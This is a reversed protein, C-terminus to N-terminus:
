TEYNCQFHYVFIIGSAIFSIGAMYEQQRSGGFIDQLRYNIKLLKMSGCMSIEDCIIMCLDEFQHRMMSMKNPQAQSYKNGEVPLFGLASDITKGGILFAANATPATVIVPPKQLDDGSKIKIFKVAEILVKLLYSKGTGANGSLFLFVPRENSDHSACRETLDDFIRRQQYNLSSINKRLESIDCIKTLDKFRSLDKSAQARAWKEFENIDNVDTTEVENQEESDDQEELPDENTENDPKINSILDSMLKYKEFISRKEEIINMNESLLKKVDKEHIDEFENRFPFFLILLGRAMDEDNEYSIYYRLVAIESRRRIFGKKDQLPILNTKLKDSKSSNKSYVIEYKGWFEALCLDDWYNDMLEDETYNIKDENTSILPRHEYYQHASFHFVPESEDLDGLNGKLLGDRFNPHVTSLYKVKTSSRIMQLGLVRYIAEQISVERSKDLAQAFLNLRELQKLSTTESNIASSLKSMGAEAKTVYGLIYAGAAYPDICIQLDHNSKFLQMLRKNYGNMFMDKVQRKLIVTASGRVSVSIATLYRQRANFRDKDTVQDFFHDVGFMGAAYLFEFFTMHKLKSSGASKNAKSDWTQRILFKIIKNLDKKAYKITQDDTDKSMAVVLETKDLPYKPFQFRCVPINLLRPGKLHGDLRGHGENEKITICKKKKACTFTHSHHQYKSVKEQLDKCESCDLQNIDHDECSIEESSTSLLCDALEEIKEKRCKSEVKQLKSKNRTRSLKHLHSSKNQNESESSNLNRSQWFSPADEKNEDQLWVLSHVHPAGRQQFEIRFFYSSAHYMKDGVAFFNYGIISFFKEIRKQFHLTTIAVNESILKNREKDTMKEIDEMPIKKRYVIEAVQQLLEPWDFEASSLTLFISPCGRQRIIAMLNKKAEQYYPATGRLSKFVQYGQNYRVLDANNLILLNQKTLNPLRRAQRLFTSICRKLLISEKVLLLFFIYTVNLRLKPDASMIQSSCYSAFGIDNSPEEVCTSLYGGRGFPFLEPFAKEEIYLDDGWNKFTGLEGPAVSVKRMKKKNKRAQGKCENAIFKSYKSTPNSVVDLNDLLSNKEKNSTSVFEKLVDTSASAEVVQDDLDIIDTEDSHCVSSNTKEQIISDNVKSVFEDNDIIEDDVEFDNEDDIQIKNAVEFEIILDALMNAVTLLDPNECYKNLFISTQNHTFNINNSEISEFSSIIDEQCFLEHAEEEVSSSNASVIMEGDKELTITEFEESDNLCDIEFSDLLDLDLDVNEFLHNNKKLWRFYVILKNREVYEEIYAGSYALKRKFRVPILHQEVPLVRSLSHQIDSAILILDGRVKMYPGKPCHAIRVFPIILKLLHAELRNLKLFQREYIEEDQHFTTDKSQDKFQCSRKLLNVLEKPINAFKYKNIKNAKPVKGNKMQNFCLNCVYKDTKRHKLISCDKVLYADFKKLDSKTMVKCMHESKYQLCSICIVDFGTETKLKSLLKKQYNSKNWVKIYKRRTDTCEFAALQLRRSKRKNRTKDIIRHMKKRPSLRDRFQDISKHLRKRPSTQDRVQDIARHM